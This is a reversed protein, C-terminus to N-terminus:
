VQDAPPLGARQMGPLPEDGHREAPYDDGQHSRQGEDARPSDGVIDAGQELDDGAEGGGTGAHQWLYLHHGLAHQEPAAEGVEHAAHAHQHEHHGDQGRVVLVGHMQEPRLHGTGHLALEHGLHAGGGPRQVEDIEGHGHHLDHQEHGPAQAPEVGHGGGEAGGTGATGFATTMADFWGLGGAMLLVIEVVTMALYILYLARATSRMKPMLKGKVPGPVEARLLHMSHEDDTPLIAMMFVLVGMGGVFHSFSRWFLVGKPVVEVEPLVSAGTTTFGSIIEFLASIYNPIAGSCVFPLAGVLSIVVWSLTVSVFGERPHLSGTQRRGVLYLLAAGLLAILITWLFPAPSERYIAAVALPAVLLGAEIALVRGLISSIIRYNM